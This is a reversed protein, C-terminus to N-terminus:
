VIHLNIAANLGGKQKLSGVMHGVWRVARYWGDRRHTDGFDTLHVTNSMLM